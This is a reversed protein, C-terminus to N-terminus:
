EGPHHMDMDMSAHEGGWITKPDNGAFLYVHAMWGFVRPVFRGGVAACEEPTNIKLWHAVTAPDTKVVGARISDPNAACFNVHEHWNAISTPLRADLEEPTSTPLASYMVGVLTMEGKEDKKYLLSIPKTADFPGIVASANGYNTYHYIPQNVLWPMFERYGDAEAVKVDKYKSLAARATQVITAARASDGPAVARKPAMRMHTGEDQLLASIAAAAEPNNAMQFGLMMGQNIRRDRARASDLGSVRQAGAVTTTCLAAFLSM